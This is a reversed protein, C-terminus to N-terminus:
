SEGLDPTELSKDSYRKDRYLIGSSPTSIAPTTLSPCKVDHLLVVRSNSFLAYPLRHTGKVSKRIIHYTKDFSKGRLAVVKGNLAEHRVKAVNAAEKSSYVDMVYSQEKRYELLLYVHQKM